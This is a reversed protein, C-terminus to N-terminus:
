HQQEDCSQFGNVNIGLLGFGTALFGIGGLDLAALTRM